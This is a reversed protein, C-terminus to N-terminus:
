HVGWWPQAFSDVVNESDIRRLSLIEHSGVAVRSFDCLVEFHEVYEVENDLLSTVRLLDLLGL